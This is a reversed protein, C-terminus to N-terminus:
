KNNSPFALYNEKMVLEKITELLVPKARKVSASNTSNDYELVLGLLRTNARSAIMNMNNMSIFDYKKLNNLIDYLDYYSNDNIYIGGYKYLLEIPNFKNNVIIINFENKYKKYNTTVINNLWLYPKNSYKLDFTIPQIFTKTYNNWGSKYGKNKWNKFNTELYRAPVNPGYVIFDEFMYEKLPFLEDKYFYEKSLNERAIPNEYIYKNDSSIVPFVDVFPYISNLQHLKYRDDQKIIGINNRNLEKEISLVKPLDNYHISIDADDVWTLMHKNRVAGLLTTHIVWYDINNAKLISTIRKLINVTDQLNKYPTLVSASVNVFKEQRILITYSYILFIIVIIIISKAM